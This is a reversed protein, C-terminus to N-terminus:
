VRQVERNIRQIDATKNNRWSKVKWQPSTKKNVNEVKGRLNEICRIILAKRILLAITSDNDKQFCKLKIM